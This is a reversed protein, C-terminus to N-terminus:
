NAVVQTSTRPRFISYGSTGSVQQFLLDLDVRAPSRHHKRYLGEARRRVARWFAVDGTVAAKVSPQSYWRAFLALDRASLDVDMASFLLGGLDKVAWRRPMRARIQARHLDIVYLQPSGIGLPRSLDLLFHCLYFDRHNIGNGHLTRAIAALARIVRRKFSSDIPWAEPRAALAELSIAPAIEETIVFSRRTASTRGDEGFALVRPARIGLRWLEFLARWESRAGPQPPRFDLLDHVVPAWGTAEHAKIFFARGQRVFRGTRRNKFERAVVQPIRLFDGVRSESAFCPQVEPDVWIM